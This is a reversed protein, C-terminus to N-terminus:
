AALPLDIQEVLKALLRRCAQECRKCEEACVRCQEQYAAFRECEAGCRECTKACAEIHAMMRDPDSEFLRLAARSATECIEACDMNLRICARLSREGSEGLCADACNICIRRCSACAAVWDFSVISSVAPHLSESLTPPYSMEQFHM